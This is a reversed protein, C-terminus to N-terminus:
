DGGLHSDRRGSVPNVPQSHAGENICIERPWVAATPSLQTTTIVPKLHKMSCSKANRGGGRGVSFTMCYLGFFMKPMEGGGLVWPKKTCIRRYNSLKDIHLSICCHEECLTCFMHEIANQKPGDVLQVISDQLSQQPERNAQKLQLRKWHQQEFKWLTWCMKSWFILKLIDAATMSRTAKIPEFGM